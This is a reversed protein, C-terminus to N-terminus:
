SSPSPHTFADDRYAAMWGLGAETGAAPVYECGVFGGYDLRELGALLAPFDLTGTGPEHRGPADAIQVHAIRPAHKALDGVIDEGMMAMHYLDAQLFLNDAGIGAIVAAAEDLRNLLFGPVDRDNIPEILLRLGARKLAAAAFALNESLVDLLRARETGPPSLGALCNLQPCGLAGAYDIARFVGDRFEAKRGPLAAIGREGAAWDGAPLNHLVLPLGSARLPEALREKPEAYPFQIEVGAFGAARAAAFRETLPRETFLLSLNASFRPM